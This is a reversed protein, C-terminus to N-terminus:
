KMNMTRLMQLAADKQEPTLSVWNDFLEKLEPTLEVMDNEAFFQSLTIGFAGCIAELTTISPVTNRKFINALTSESLGSEKALRYSTWGREAMLQQLRSLTDM